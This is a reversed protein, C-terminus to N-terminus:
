GNELRAILSRGLRRAPDEILRNIATAAIVTGLVAAAYLLAVQM